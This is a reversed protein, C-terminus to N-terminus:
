PRSVHVLCAIPAISREERLPFYQPLFCRVRTPSNRRRHRTSPVQTSESPNFVNVIAFIAFILQAPCGLEGAISGKTIRRLVVPVPTSVIKLREDPSASNFSSLKVAGGRYSWLELSILNDFNLIKICARSYSAVHYKICYTKIKFVSDVRSLARCPNGGPHPFEPRSLKTAFDRRALSVRIRPPPPPPSACVVSPM